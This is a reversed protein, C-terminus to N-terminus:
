AQRQYEPYARGLPARDIPDRGLGILRQLQAETVEAGELIRGSGLGPLGSGIWRGPAQKARSYSIKALQKIFQDCRAVGIERLMLRDFAPSVLTRMNREYLNRTTKSIRGELDIDNLWYAVLDAFLSDPTLTTDAPRLLSREALKAKLAGEAAKATAGTAQVQRARGDWDRYRTRAEYRGSPMVRTTIDGFTGITLRPRAM